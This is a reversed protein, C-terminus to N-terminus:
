TITSSGAGGGAPPAGGPGNSNNQQQALLEAQRLEAERAATAAAVSATDTPGTPGGTSGTTTTAGAVPTTANQDLATSFATSGTGVDPANNRIPEDAGALPPGYNDLETDAFSAYSVSAIPEREITPESIATFPIDFNIANPGAPGLSAYSGVNTLNSQEPETVFVSNTVTVDTEGPELIEVGQEALRREITERDVDLMELAQDLQATTIQGGEIQAQVRRSAEMDAESTGLELSENSSWQSGEGDSDFSGIVEGEPFNMNELISAPPNLEYLTLDNLEFKNEEFAAEGAAQIIDRRQDLTLSTNDILEAAAQVKALQSDGIGAINCKSSNAELETMVEETVTLTDELAEVRQVVGQRLSQAEALGDRAAQIDAETVDSGPQGLQATLRAVEQQAEIVQNNYEDFKESLENERDRYLDLLEDIAQVEPTEALFALNGAQDARAQVLTDIRGTLEETVPNVVEHEMQDRTEAEATVDQGLKEIMAGLAAIADQGYALDDLRNGDEDYQAVGIGSSTLQEYQERDAARIEAALLAAAEANDGEVSELRQLGAEDTGGAARLEAIRILESQDFAGDQRVELLYESLEAQARLQEVTFLDAAGEATAAQYISDSQEVLMASFEMRDDVRDRSITAAEMAQEAQALEAKLRELEDGSAGADIQRQINDMRERATEINSNHLEWEETLQQREQEYLELTNEASRIQIALKIREESGPELNVLREKDREIQDRLTEIREDFDNQLREFEVRAIDREAELVQLEQEMQQHYQTFQEMTQIDSISGVALLLARRRALTEERQEALEVRAKQIESAQTGSIHGGHQDDGHGRMNHTLITGHRDGAGHHREEVGDNFDKIGQEDLGPSIFNAPDSPDDPNITANVGIDELALGATEAEHPKTDPRLDEREEDNGGSGSNIGGM